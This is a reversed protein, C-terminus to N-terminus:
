LLAEYNKITSNLVQMEVQWTRIKALPGNGIDLLTKLNADSITQLFAISSLYPLVEVPDAISFIYLLAAKKAENKTQHKPDISDSVNYAIELYEAEILEADLRDRRRQMDADVDYDPDVHRSPTIYPVGLHDTFIYKVSKQGNAQTTGYRAVASVISM